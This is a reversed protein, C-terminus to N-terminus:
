NQLYGGAEGVKRAIEFRGIYAREELRRVPDATDVSELVLIDAIVGGRDCLFFSLTLVPHIVQLDTTEQNVGTKKGGEARVNSASGGHYLILFTFHSSTFGDQLRHVCV